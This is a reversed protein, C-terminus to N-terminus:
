GLGLRKLKDLLTVRNMGLRRAAESHNHQCADLTQSIIGREFAAVREKFPLELPEDLQAPADSGFPDDDILASTSLAVLREITNELERVNGPWPRAELREILRESLRVEGIGFRDAFRRAFHEALPRIDEPRERLPPVRLEVVKLRYYLDERFRGAKVEAALDRHTAALLRVDIPVSREEGVPRVEREQLVRLLASQTRPLLEGVEDILLTGGEAERFLGPRAREAGTFAGRAHGFLEAEVLEPALAAANFRVYPRKSRRSARVIAKAVLEKGTGSEGTILVTVDRPAVREVLEAVRSLAESAFIMTKGLALEARLRRNDERLRVSELARRVVRIVEDPDFPKAFYDLAGRKMAEVAMRESGHATIMIARPGGGRQALADLLELGSLGPMKLDTIVLDVGGRDVIALGARGDAAEVVKVGDDELIARLTYRLPAEDDIVLVTPGPREASM